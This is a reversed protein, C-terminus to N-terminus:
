LHFNKWTGNSTCLPLEFTKRDRELNFQFTDWLWQLFTRGQPLPWSVNPSAFNLILPQFFIFCTSKPIQGPWQVRFLKLSLSRKFKPVGYKILPSNWFRESVDTYLRSAFQLDGVVRAEQTLAQFKGLFSGALDRFKFILNQYVGTHIRTSSCKM